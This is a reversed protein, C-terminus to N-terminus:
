NTRFPPATLQKLCETQLPTDGASDIFTKVLSASCGPFSPGHATGPLVVHRATTGQIAREVVPPPMAPDIAGSVVLTPAAPVSVTVPAAAVPWRECAAIVMHTGASFGSQLQQKEGATLLPADEACVVSLYAGLAVTNYVGEVTKATVALPLVNGVAANHILWPVMQRTPTQLMLAYLTLDLLDASVPNPVKGLQERVAALEQEVQPFATSCATDGRCDAVLQALAARANASGDRLINFGPTAMARLVVTRVM